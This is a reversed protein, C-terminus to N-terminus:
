QKYGNMSSAVILNTLWNETYAFGNLNSAPSDYGAKKQLKKLCYPYYNRLIAWSRIASNASEFKGHFNQRTFISKKMLKMIRDCMNSTRYGTPHDYAKQYLYSKNYLSIIKELTGPMKVNLVAWEKFRRLRQAFTSKTKAKYVYWVKGCILHYIESKRCRDRIKIFGHLFCYILSISPFIEQLVNTTANWGDINASIPAYEPDINRSEKAFVEYGPKLSEENADKCVEAGVICDNAVTTAVYAKDGAVKTHKEDASIHKPLM